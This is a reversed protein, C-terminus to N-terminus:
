KINKRQKVFELIDLKTLKPKESEAIISFTKSNVLNENLSDLLSRLISYAEKEKNAKLLDVVKQINNRVFANRIQGLFEQYEADNMRSVVTNRKEEPEKKEAPFLSMQKTDAVNVIKFHGENELANKADEFTKIEETDNDAMDYHFVTNAYDIVDSESANAKVTDGSEDNINYRDSKIQPRNRENWPLDYYTYGIVKYFLEDITDKMTWENASETQVNQQNGAIDNVEKTKNVLQQLTNKANDLTQMMKPGAEPNTILEAAMQDNNTETNEM